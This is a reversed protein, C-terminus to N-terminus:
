YAACVFGHHSFSARGATRHCPYGLVDQRAHAQRYPEPENWLDFLLTDTWEKSFWVFWTETPASQEGMGQAKPIYNKSTKM